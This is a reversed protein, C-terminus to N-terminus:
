RKKMKDVSYNISNQHGSNSAFVLAEEIEDFLTVEHISCNSM